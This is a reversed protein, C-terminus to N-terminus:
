AAGDGQDLGLAGFGRSSMEPVQRTPVQRTRLHLPKNPRETDEYGDQYGYEYEYEYEYEAERERVQDSSQGNSVEYSWVAFDLSAHYGDPQEHDLKM